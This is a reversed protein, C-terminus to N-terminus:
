YVSAAVENNKFLIVQAKQLGPTEQRHLRLHERVLASTLGIGRFMPTTYVSEIQVAGTAREINTEAVAALRTGAQEWKVQGVLHFLISAKIQGSPVGDKGEIWSACAAAPKGAVEAILFHSLCIEQGEIEESLIRALLRAVQEEQLTFIGAYSLLA